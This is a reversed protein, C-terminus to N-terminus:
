TIQDDDRDYYARIEFPLDYGALESLDIFADYKGDPTFSGPGMCGPKPVLAPKIMVNIGQDLGELHRKVQRAQHETFTEEAQTTM